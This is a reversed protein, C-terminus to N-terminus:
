SSKSLGVAQFSFRPVDDCLRLTRPSGEALKMNGRVRRKTSHNHSPDAVTSQRECQRKAFNRPKIYPPFFIRRRSHSTFEWRRIGGPVDFWPIEGFSLALSPPQGRGGNTLSAGGGSSWPM